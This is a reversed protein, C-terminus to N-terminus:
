QSVPKDFLGQEIGSHLYFKEWDKLSLPKGTSRKIFDDWRYREGQALFDNMLWDGLGKKGFYSAHRPDEGIKSAFLNAFQVNAIRGIAYNSYYLPGVNSIHYKVLADPKKWGDPRTLLQDRGRCEWWLDGIDRDPNTYFGKEFCYIAASWRLFILQDVYDILSVTDAAERAKDPMVGLRTFWDYTDTQKEFLMAVAETLMTPERLLYPLEKNRLIAEYNIDHSLEHVLTSVDSAKPPTPPKPLNMILVSSDPKDPDLFWAVAHPNKGPKPFLSSNNIIPRIDVGFSAYFDITLNIAKNSDIKKYFADLDVKGFISNPAEQFFMNQYHWPKLGKVDIGYRKALRPDIFEEKLRRFPQDTAKRIDDYFKDLMEITMESTEAALALANPYGLDRAIENRLKVVERYDKELLPGVEHSAVWLKELEKSDTSDVMIRAVEDPFIKKGNVVPRFDNFTERLRKEIQTLRELKESSVQNSLHGLYLIEIQRRILEDGIKDKSRVLAKLKEFRPKDSDLKRMSLEIESERESAKKDGTTDYEYWAKRLGLDLPKFKVLYEDIVAKAESLMDADKGKAYSSVCVAALAAVAVIALVIKM